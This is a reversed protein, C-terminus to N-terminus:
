EEPKYLSNRFIDTLLYRVNELTEMKKIQDYTFWGIDESEKEAKIVEQFPVKIVYIFDQHQHPKENKYKPINELIIYEPKPLITTKDKLTKPRLIYNKIDIGTEEFVERIVTEYSNEKAEQHGGPPLWAGFKRHKVLLVKQPKENSVIFATSASHVEKKVKM